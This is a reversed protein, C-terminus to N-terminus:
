YVGRVQQTLANMAQKPVATGLGEATQALAPDDAWGVAPGAMDMPPMAAAQLGQMAQQAQPSAGGAGAATAGGGTSAGFRENPKVANSYYNGDSSKSYNNKSAWEAQQRESEAAADIGAQRWQDRTKGNYLTPDSGPVYDLAM